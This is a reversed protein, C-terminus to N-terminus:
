FPRSVRSPAHNDAAGPSLASVASGGDPSDRTQLPERDGALGVIAVAEPLSGREVQGLAWHQGSTRGRGIFPRGECNILTVFHRRGDKPDHVLRATKQLAFSVVDCLRRNFFREACRRAHASLSVACAGRSVTGSDM